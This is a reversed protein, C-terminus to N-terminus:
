VECRQSKENGDAFCAVHRPGALLLVDHRGCDAFAQGLEFQGYARRQELAPSAADNGRGGALNQELM